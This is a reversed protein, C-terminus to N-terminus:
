IVFALRLLLLTTAFLVSAGAIMLVTEAKM